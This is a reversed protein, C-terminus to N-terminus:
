YEDCVPENDNRKLITQLYLIRRCSILFRIPITGTELFLFEKPVKYHGEVLSRLLHEDVAELTKTDKETLSHWAESNYIIGNLLMAQRLMLGIEMKYKGLPIDELIALIEAVIGYGNTRRDEITSDNKGSNTIYDGLYKEKISDTM